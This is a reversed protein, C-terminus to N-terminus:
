APKEVTKLYEDLAKFIVWSVSHNITKSYDDARKMTDRYEPKVSLSFTPKLGTTKTKRGTDM